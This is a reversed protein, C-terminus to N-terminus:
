QNTDDIKIYYYGCKCKVADKDGKDAAEWESSWGFLCLESACELCWREGRTKVTGEKGCGNSCKEYCVKCKGSPHPNHKKDCDICFLEGCDGGCIFWNDKECEKGCKDCQNNYEENDNNCM